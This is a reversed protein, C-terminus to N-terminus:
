LRGSGALFVLVASIFLLVPAAFGFRERGGRMAWGCPLGFLFGGLHGAWSVGPLLSILAVQGLWIGISQRGHKTAIPLIAGGWALIMGSAGVTRQDFNFLLVFFASGLAGVLSTILMRFPGVGTELVRGLTWVASMNFVLHLAGGHEFATMIVRWWDGEQVLPGYLAFSPVRDPEGNVALWLQILFWGVSGALVTWSVWTIREPAAAPEPERPPSGPGGSIPIQPDRLAL